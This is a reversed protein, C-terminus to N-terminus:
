AYILALTYLPYKCFASKNKKEIELCTALPWMYNTTTAAWGAGNMVNLPYLLIMFLLMINNEKKNDKVFIKSISYGIITVMIAELLIWLYKSTKLVACLIFEIIVRSSWWSYRSM